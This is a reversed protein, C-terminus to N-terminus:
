IAAGDCDQDVGDEISRHTYMLVGDLDSSWTPYVVHVEGDGIVVDDGHAGDDRVTGQGAV